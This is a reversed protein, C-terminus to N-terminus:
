IKYLKGFNLQHSKALAGIKDLRNEEFARKALYMHKKYKKKESLYINRRDMNGTEKLFLKRNKEHTRKQSFLEKTM